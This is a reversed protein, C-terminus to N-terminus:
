EKQGEPATSKKQPRPASPRPEDAEVILAPNAALEDAVSPPVVAPRDHTATGYNGIRYEHGEDRAFVRAM